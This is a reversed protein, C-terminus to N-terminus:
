HDRGGTELPRESIGEVQAVQDIDRLGNIKRRDFPAVVGVIVFIFKEGRRRGFAAATAQHSTGFHLRLKGEESTKRTHFGGTRQASDSLMSSVVVL